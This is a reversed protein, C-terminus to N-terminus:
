GGPSDVAPEVWPALAEGYADLLTPPAPVPAGDLLARFQLANVVAQARYHNNFVVEVRTTAGDAAIERTREVWPRLEEVTYLYDYRADRGAGKRFWDHYNRGHARVYGTAATSRASPKISRRFVPQDLNVFGIGRETLWEYFAPENWSEHRVEVVLPFRRFARAVDALWSRSEEGAQFSWPFQVLLADLRGAARIPELGARAQRAEEASWATREHTFRRWLKATFRFAPAAQVQALWTRATSPAPPGYFSSNVEMLDVFRALFGLRGRRGLGPPYLVGHWDKYDWGAVGVRIAARRAQAMTAERVSHRLRRALVM